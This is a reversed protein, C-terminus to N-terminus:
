QAGAVSMRAILASSLSDYIEAFISNADIKGLAFNSQAYQVFEKQVDTKIDALAERLQQIDLRDRRAQEAM